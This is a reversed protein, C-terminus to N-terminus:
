IFPWVIHDFFRVTTEIMLREEFESELTEVFILIGLVASNIAKKTVVPWSM